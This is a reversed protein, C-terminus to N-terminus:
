RADAATTLGVLYPAAAAALSVAPWGSLPQSFASARPGHETWAV